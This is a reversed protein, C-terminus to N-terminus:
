FSFKGQTIVFKWDFNQMNTFSQKIDNKQNAQQTQTYHLISYLLRKKWRRKSRMM